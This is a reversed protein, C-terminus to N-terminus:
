LKNHPDTIFPNVAYSLMERTGQVWLWVDRLEQRSMVRMREEMAATACYLLM